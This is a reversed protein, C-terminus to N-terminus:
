KEDINIEYNINIKYKWDNFYINGGRWEVEGRQFDVTESRPFIKVPFLEQSYDDNVIWRFSDISGLYFWNVEEKESPQLGFSQDVPIWNEGDFSIECWDHLNVEVPHLMWGSQWKTPIGNYRLLTMFLLTKIGCDGYGKNVCYQPINFITSYELVSAWPINDSIWKFIKKVKLIPDKEGQLIKKSLSKIEETFIIHPPREVTYKKVLYNNTDIKVSGPLPLINREAFTTFEFHLIFETPLDKVAKKEMYLTRQLFSNPAIIFNDDNVYTLNIDRQRFSERPYPLWCRIIEGDPVVNEKVIIKYEISFRRQDVLREQSLKHQNIVFPVHGRLFETLQDVKPGDILEKRKAAEKNVRFLNQAANNFYKKKGDIMLYELSGDSEWNLIMQSNVEPIYKKIYEIIDEENKSFDIKIRKMREKEFLLTLYNEDNPTLDKVEIDIINEAEIFNGSQILNKVLELKSQPIIVSMFITFLFILRVM